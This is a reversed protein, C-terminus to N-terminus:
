LGLEKMAQAQTVFEHCSPEIQAEAIMALDIADPLVSEIEQWTKPALHAQILDWLTQADDDSMVTLAGIIREKIITM